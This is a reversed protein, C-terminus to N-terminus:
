RDDEPAPDLSDDWPVVSIAVQSAILYHWGCKICKGKRGHLDGAVAPHMNLFTYHNMKCSGAKSQEEIVAGCNQCHFYFNDFMGM